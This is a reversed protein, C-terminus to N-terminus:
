LEPVYDVNAAEKEWEAAIEEMAEKAEATAVLWHTKDLNVGTGNEKGKGKGKGEGTGKGKM